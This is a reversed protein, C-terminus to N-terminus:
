GDPGPQDDCAQASRADDPTPSFPSTPYLRDLRGDGVRLRGEDARGENQDLDYLMSLAPFVRAQWEEYSFENLVQQAQKAWDLGEALYEAYTVRESM